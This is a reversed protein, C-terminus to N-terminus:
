YSTKREIRGARLQAEQGFLSPSIPASLPKIKTTKDIMALDCLQFLRGIEDALPDLKPINVAISPLKKQAEAILQKQEEENKGDLKESPVEAVVDGTEPDIKIIVPSPEQETCIRNYEAWMYEGEITGTPRVLDPIAIMNSRLQWSKKAWFWNFWRTWSEMVIADVPMAFNVRDPRKKDFGFNYSPGFIVLPREDKPIVLLSQFSLDEIYKLFYLRIELRNGMENSINELKKLDDPKTACAPYLVLIIKARIQTQKQMLQIFWQLGEGHLESIVGCISQASELLDHFPPYQDYDISNEFVRPEPWLFPPSPKLYSSKKNQDSQDLFNDIELQKEFM